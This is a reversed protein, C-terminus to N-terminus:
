EKKKKGSWPMVFNRNPCYTIGFIEDGIIYGSQYYTNSSDSSKFAFYLKDWSENLFAEKIPSGYFSGEFDKGNQKDIILPQLYPDADPSPRLDLIWEGLLNANAESSGNLNNSQSFTSKSLTTLLILILLRM